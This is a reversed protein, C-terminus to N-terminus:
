IVDAGRRLLETKYTNARQSSGVSLGSAYSTKVYACHISDAKFKTYLIYLHSDSINRVDNDKEKMAANFEEISCEKYNLM